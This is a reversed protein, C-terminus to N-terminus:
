RSTEGFGPLRLRSVFRWDRLFMALTLAGFPYAAARSLAPPVQPWLAAALFGMQCGALFRRARKPDLDRLPRRSRKRAEIGLVFLYRALGIVLYWLPLKELAVGSVTAVLVGLADIELDLKSGLLTERKWRRAVRGDLGDLIAAAAYSPASVEPIRLHGATLATLLGRLLTIRTPAGLGPLLEGGEDRRNDPLFRYLLFSCWAWVPLSGALSAPRHLAAASLAALGAATLLAWERRLEGTRL